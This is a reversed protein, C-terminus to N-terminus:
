GWGGVCGPSIVIGEGGGGQGAPQSEGRQKCDNTKM